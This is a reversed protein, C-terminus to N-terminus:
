RRWFGPLFIVLVTYLELRGALMAFSLAWKVYDELFSYNDMPGVKGFGPGIGGLTTLVATFSTTIDHGASAVIATVTLLVAIYLFFFGSVSYVIDKKVMGGSLKLTFVGRPHLLLKMENVAQKFLVVIRMVKIGGSTSGTCGGVFMLMFLIIQGLLPWQEFDESAFGTSTLISATQFSAYRICEGVTHHINGYLSFAAVATATAFILLYAKLETDRLIPKFRGTIFRFHLTFNIGALLMFVTIVGDIYASKYHGVGANKVSFGGTALTGFTHTLADFLDMGGLVLLLTEAVTFGVYIFWLLKATGAIRPTLRDVTPGPAEAQILQLGGVGMLPLIAVTLVVIGMGGLWHTLSRWFLMSRPLSEIDTLISAGTTTFGSITEFFADTFSPISGSLYFPMAGILSALVWSLTVMLFGDRTSLSGARKKRLIFFVAASCAATVAITAAFAAFSREEGCYLAIGAPVAMFCSIIILLISIIKALVLPNM